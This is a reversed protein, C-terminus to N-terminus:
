FSRVFDYWQQIIRGSVVPVPNVTVLVDLIPSTCGLFSTQTVKYNTNTSLVPTTYTPGTGIVNGANDYWTFTARSVGTARLTTSTAPCIFKYRSDVVPPGISATFSIADLFNGASINDNFSSVAEFIFRTIAQGSPVTYVGRHLGWSNKDDSVRKIEVYPGGPPGASVKCVDAGFRGRHAFSFNFFTAVSTDYDQYVGSVMNANLEIHYNGDYAPVGDYNNKWVEILGDGATTSWGPISSDQMFNLAPSSNSWGPLEFSSNITTIACSNQAFSINFYFLLILIISKGM